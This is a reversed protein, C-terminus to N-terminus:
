DTKMEDLMKQEVANETEIETESGIATEVESENKSRVDSKRRADMKTQKTDAEVRPCSKLTRRSTKMYCNRRRSARLPQTLKM